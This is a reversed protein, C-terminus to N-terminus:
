THEERAIKRLKSELTHFEEEADALTLSPHYYITTRTIVVDSPINWGSFDFNQMVAPVGDKNLCDPGQTLRVWYGDLHACQETNPPCFTCEPRIDM